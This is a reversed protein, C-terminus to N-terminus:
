CRSGAPSSSNVVKQIRLAGCGTQQLGQYDAISKGLFRSGELAGPARHDMSPAATGVHCDPQAHGVKKLPCQLDAQQSQPPRSGEEDHSQGCRCPWHNTLVNRRQNDM